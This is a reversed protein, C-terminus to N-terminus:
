EGPTEAPPAVPRYVDFRVSRGRIQWDPRSVVPAKARQKVVVRDSAYARAHEIWAVLTRDDGAAIQQLMQLPQKALGKRGRPAFMPDLYIVRWARDPLTGASIYEYGDGLQAGGVVSRLMAWVIPQREVSVVEAGLAELTAADTGWGGMVDLIPGELGCARALLSKRSVRDAKLPPPAYPAGGGGPLVYFRGGEFGLAPEELNLPLAEVAVPEFVALLQRDDPLGNGCCYLPPKM